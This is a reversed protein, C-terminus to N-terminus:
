VVLVLAEGLQPVLVQSLLAKDFGECLLLGSAGLGSERWPASVPLAVAGDGWATCGSSLLLDDHVGGGGNGIGGLVAVKRKRHKGLGGGVGATDELFVGQLLQGIKHGAVFAAKQEAPRKTASSSPLRM